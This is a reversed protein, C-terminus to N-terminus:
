TEHARLHTYSVSRFTLWELIEIWESKKMPTLSRNNDSADKPQFYAIEEISKHSDDFKELDSM